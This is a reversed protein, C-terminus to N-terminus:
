RTLGPVPTARFANVDKDMVVQSDAGSDLITNQHSEAEILVSTVCLPELGSVALLAGVQTSFCTGATAASSQATETTAVIHNDSIFNGAGAVIHMIVPTAGAPTIYQTDISESIHNGIISNNDGNIYLLGYLDDLGNNYAQMPAWPERERFFHNASVLNEASGEELVMMGPYFSHFRNASVSSRVVGSFHVSSKGRPFINNATILLGGFNQAYISYGRYGAGILNDTIKSAQGSERLEICNGCEAIFNDHISLADANYVTVGHELYVFGMGSVRFSDQASAIYIGTKGNLYSNEPDDSGSGEDVFHLGDICFDSFEVSSIRPDGSRAVYFAAGTYEEADAPPTINVLVRSGGPWLEHWNPWESQPTNYRISSSTFGHGSGMIKLYSIDIVVQSLLSYDGPPIYIVAGPKGGQNNDTATQRSKIDAIISNIVEGIDQYPNGVSWETVDYYNNSAM